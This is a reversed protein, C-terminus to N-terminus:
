ESLIFATGALSFVNPDGHCYTPVSIIFKSRSANSYLPIFSVNERQKSREWSFSCLPCKIIVSEDKTMPAIKTGQFIAGQLCFDQVIISNKLVEGLSFVLQLEVIPIDQERAIQQRLADFVSTPRLM